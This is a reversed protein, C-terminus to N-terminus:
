RLRRTVPILPQSLAILSVVSLPLLVRGFDIWRGWVVAGMTAALVLHTAVIPRLERVGWLLAGLGLLLVSTAALADTTTWAEAGEVLGGFPVATPRRDWVGTPWAGLHIRLVMIWAVYPLASTTLLCADRWHRRPILEVLALTAPVLLLTERSLGALGFCAIAPLTARPRRLWSGLGLLALATGLSEPGVLSLNALLGPALLLLLALAPEGGLLAIYRASLGVLLAGSIATITLLAVPVVGPRGGSTVWGLWGYLPRQFRYAQENPGFRIREPQRLFPDVAHTAFFQGDAQNLMTEVPRRPPDYLSSMLLREDNSGSGVSVGRTAYLWPVVACFLLGILAVLRLRTRM